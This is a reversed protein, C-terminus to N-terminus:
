YWSISVDVCGFLNVEFYSEKKFKKEALSVNFSPENDSEFNPVLGLFLGTYFCYFKVALVLIRVHM